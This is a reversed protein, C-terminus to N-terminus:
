NYLVTLQIKFCLWSFVVWHSHTTTLTWVQTNKTFSKLKQPRCAHFVLKLACDVSFWETHWCKHRKQSAKRWRWNQAECFRPQTSGNRVRRQLQDAELEESRIAVCCHLWLPHAPMNASCYSPLTWDTHTWLPQSTVCWSRHPSSYGMM